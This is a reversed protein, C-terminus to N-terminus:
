AAAKQDAPDAVAPAGEAGLDDVLKALKLADDAGTPAEGSEWRSLRPQPIGTRRSIETQSLKHKERLVLILDTTASM